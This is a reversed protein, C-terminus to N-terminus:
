VGVDVVAAVGVPVRGTYELAHLSWVDGWMEKERVSAWSAMLRPQPVPLKAVLSVEWCFNEIKVGCVFLLFIVPIQPQLASWLLHLALVSSIHARLSQWPQNAEAISLQSVVVDV